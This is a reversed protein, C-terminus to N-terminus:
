VAGGIEDVADALRRFYAQESKEAVKAVALADPPLLAEVAERLLARMIDAPMAEAEVTQKVHQARRDTEKRPKTPLQYQDIQEPTIGLRVFDMEVDASLHRRLKSEVDRDILVGAPDYDGIYFITVPRNDDRNNIQEAAEFIFTESSFGGCPYLAVALENCDGQIMGAISRSETWIECYHDSQAWLDSRYLGAVRSLFDGRGSFTDVFYGRAPRTM